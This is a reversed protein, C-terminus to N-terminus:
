QVQPKTVWGAARATELSGGAAYVAAFFVAPTAALLLPLAIPNSFRRQVGAILVLLALAPLLKLLADADALNLWSVPDANIPVGSALSVGAALCFYGVFALYGGIVPLPVYQV